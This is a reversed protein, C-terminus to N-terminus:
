SERKPHVMTIIFACDELAEVAHHVGGRLTLLGGVSLIRHDGSVDFRISGEIVAITIDGEAAHEPLANGKSLVMLVVRLQDNKALTVSGKRSANWQPGSRIRAVEDPISFSMMPQDLNRDGM